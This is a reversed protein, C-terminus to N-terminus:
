IVDNEGIVIKTLGKYDGDMRTGCFPCYNSKEDHLTKCNSCKFYFRTQNHHEIWEAKECDFSRKTYM